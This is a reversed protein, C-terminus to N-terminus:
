RNAKTYCDQCLSKSYVGGHIQGCSTCKYKVDSKSFIRVIMKVLSLKIDM